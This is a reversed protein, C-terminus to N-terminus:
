KGMKGEGYVDRDKERGDTELEKDKIREGSLPASPSVPDARRSKLPRTQIIWAPVKGEIATLVVTDNDCCFVGQIQEAIMRDCCKPIELYSLSMFPSSLADEGERGGVWHM